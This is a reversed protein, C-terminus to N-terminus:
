SPSLLAIVRVKGAAANFENKLQAFSTPSVDALAAGASDSIAYWAGAGGFLVAALIGIARKRNM